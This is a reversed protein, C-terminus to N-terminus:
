YYYWPVNVYVCTYIVWGGLRKVGLTRFMGKISHITAFDQAPQYTTFMANNIAPQHNPVHIKHSEMWNPIEDDCSVKLGDNKLATPSLWWGSLYIYIDMYQVYCSVM